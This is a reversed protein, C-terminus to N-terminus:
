INEIYRIMKERTKKNPLKGFGAGMNDVLHEPKSTAPIVCTVAPHSLIFKLFFQAWSYCNFDATWEPLKIGRTISFGLGQIFPRNIVVAHGTDLALPLLANEAEREFISYNIQVFDFIKQKLISQVLPYANAHYHTIGIYRIVQREKLSLLTKTHTKWDVLNHIQLLDLIDTQMLSMSKRVQRRGQEEGKTWVKTAMFVSNRVNLEYTLNGVVRESHGYMPSSDIVSGGNQVFLDLVKKLNKLSKAGIDASFTQYTGLGIVPIDEGTKPIKRHSLPINQASLYQLKGSHYLLSGGLMMKLIIRRNLDDM